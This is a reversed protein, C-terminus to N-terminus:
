PRSGHKSIARDPAEAVAAGSMSHALEVIPSWRSWLSGSGQGADRCHLGACPSRRQNRRSRDAGSCRARRCRERNSRRRIGAVIVVDESPDLTSGLGIRGGIELEGITEVVAGCAPGAADELARADIDADLVHEIGVQREDGFARVSPVTIDAVNAAAVDIAAYPLRELTIEPRIPACDRLPSVSKKPANERRGDSPTM